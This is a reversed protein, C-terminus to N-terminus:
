EVGGGKLLEPLSKGRKESARFVREGRKRKERSLNESEGEGKECKEKKDSMRCPRRSPEEKKDKEFYLTTAEKKSGGKRLRLRGGGGEFAVCHFGMGRRCRHGERGRRATSEEAGNGTKKRRGGAFPPGSKSKLFL